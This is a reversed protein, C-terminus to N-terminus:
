IKKLTLKEELKQIKKMQKGLNKQQKSIAKKLAKKEGSTTPM